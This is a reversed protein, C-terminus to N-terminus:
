FYGAEWMRSWHMTPNVALQAPTLADGRVRALFDPAVSWLLGWSGAAILVIFVKRVLSSTAPAANGGQMRVWACAIGLVFVIALQSQPMVIVGSLLGDVFIAACAVLLAALMDQNPLDAHAIRAGAGILARAGLGVAGLLCLLAPIGWEAAIQLLWNHPHAGAYLKAGAHAFHQPGVGLWPHAAILEVALKWLLFRDSAPNAVTRAVLKSVSGVPQLGVLVPLLLFIVAYLVLGTLATKVAMALFPRAYARRLAFAAACGIALAVVSARAETVFLISWWFAALSFWAKHWHVSRPIKMSLLIVLPLLATQTHNLFRPNSFGITVVSWDPQFGSALAMVYSVVVRLSYLGCAIGVWHLLGNLRRPDHALEDAIVFVAALLLLISSWENVAHPLSHAAVTSALGLALFAVLLVGVSKPVGHHASKGLRVLSIFAMMCFAVIEFCRQLDHGSAFLFNATMASCLALTAAGTYSPILPWTRPTAAISDRTM